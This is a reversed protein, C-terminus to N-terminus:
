LAEISLLVDRPYNKVYYARYREGAEFAQLQEETQLPLEKAGIRVFLAVGAGLFETEGYRRRIPEAAGEVHSVRATIVERSRLFFNTAGGGMALLGVGFAVPLAVGLSGADPSLLGWIASGACALLFVGAFIAFAVLSIVRGRRYQELTPKQGDAIRGQQNAQLDAPGFAFAAALRRNRELSSAM